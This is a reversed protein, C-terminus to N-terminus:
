NGLDQGVGGGGGLPPAINHPYQTGELGGFSETRQIWYPKEIFQMRRMM